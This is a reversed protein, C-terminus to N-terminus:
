ALEKETLINPLAGGMGGELHSIGLHKEVAELSGLIKSQKENIEKLEDLIRDLINGSM